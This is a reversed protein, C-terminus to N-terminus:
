RTPRCRPRRSVTSSCSPSPERVKDTVTQEAFPFKGEYRFPGPPTLTFRVDSGLQWESALLAMSELHADVMVEAEEGTLYGLAVSEAKMVERDGDLAAQLLRYWGDMFEKTYARSAGFDILQIKGSKGDYMFNAWNPDTQM